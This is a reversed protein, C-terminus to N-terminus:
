KKPWYFIFTFLTSRCCIGVGWFETASFSESTCAFLPLNGSLERVFKPSGIKKLSLMGKMKSAILEHITPFTPHTVKRETLFM